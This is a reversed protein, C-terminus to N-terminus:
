EKWANVTELESNDRPGEAAWRVEMANLLNRIEGRRILIERQLATGLEWSLYSDRAREEPSM